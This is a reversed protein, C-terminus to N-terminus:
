NFNFKFYKKFIKIFNSSLFYKLMLDKNEQTQLKWKMCPFMNKLITAKSVSDFWLPMIHKWYICQEPFQIICSVYYVKHHFCKQQLFLLDVFVYHEQNSRM